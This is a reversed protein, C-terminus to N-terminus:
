AEEGKHRAEEEAGRRAAVEIPTDFYVIIRPWGSLGALRTAARRGSEDEWRVVSITANEIRTFNADLWDRIKTYPTPAAAGHDRFTDHKYKYPFPKGGVTRDNSM